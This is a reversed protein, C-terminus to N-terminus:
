FLYTLSISPAIIDDINKGAMDWNDGENDLEVETGIQYELGADLRWVDRRYTLGFGFATKATAPLIATYTEDPAPSSISRFGSRLSLSRSLRYDLGVGIEVTDEWDLETVNPDEGAVIPLATDMSRSIDEVASWQTWVADITLTLEDMLFDRYALGIGATLPFTFDFESDRGAATLSDVVSTIRSKGSCAITIPTRVTAGVSIQDTARYLVGITAGYSWGTADDEIRYPSLYLTDGEEEGIGTVVSEGLGVDKFVVHGYVAHGTVGVSLGPILERAIVPSIVYGKIDTEFDPVTGALVVDEFPSAGQAPVIDDEDYIDEGSWTAMFDTLAYLGIGWKDLMGSLPGCGTYYYLGPAVPLNADMTAEITAVANQGMPGDVGELLLVGDRSALIVPAHLAATLETGSIQTIGAPNWHVASYDDALGIFAGGMSSARVGVTPTVYGNALAPLCGALVLVLCGALAGFVRM